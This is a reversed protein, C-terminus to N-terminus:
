EGKRSNFFAGFGTSDVHEKKNSQLFEKLEKQNFDNDRIKMRLEENERQLAELIPLKGKTEVGIQDILAYELAKQPTLVTEADMMGRLQEETLNCRKLYLAICSEMYADLRDAEDRLEKANGEVRTWMNHILASTGDGMIRTDCGQLITFGVSHCVGDVIGTKHAPHQQLLNYISTGESVSGGNTNFHIEIEADSPITNLVDRFHAASTESEDYSWTQWNFDGHKEIDDYIFIQHVNGEAKQMCFYFPKKNM